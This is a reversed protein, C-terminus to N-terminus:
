LSSLKSKVHHTSSSTSTSTSTSNFRGNLIIIVTQRGRCMSNGIDYRTDKHVLRTSYMVRHGYRERTKPWGMTTVNTSVSVKPQESM